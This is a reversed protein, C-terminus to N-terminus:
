TLCDDCMMMTEGTLILTCLLVDVAVGCSSRLGGRGMTQSTAECVGGKAAAPARPRGPRAKAARPFGAFIKAVDGPGEGTM